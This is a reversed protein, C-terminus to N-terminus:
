KYITSRHFGLNIASTWNGRKIAQPSMKAIMCSRHKLCTEINGFFDGHLTLTFQNEWACTKQELFIHNPVAYDGSAWNLEVFRNRWCTAIGLANIKPAIPYRNRVGFQYLKESATSVLSWSSYNYRWGIEPCMWDHVLTPIPSFFIKLIKTQWLKGMQVFRHGVAIKTPSCYSGDAVEIWTDVPSFFRTKFWIVQWVDVILGGKPQNFWTLDWHERM